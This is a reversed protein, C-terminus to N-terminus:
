SASQESTSPQEHDHRTGVLLVREDLVSRVTVVVYEVGLETLGIDIATPAVTAGAAWPEVAIRREVALTTLAQAPQALVGAAVVVELIGALGADVTAPRTLWTRSTLGALIAAVANRAHAIGVRQDACARAAVVADPVTFLRVGVAAPGSTVPAKGTFRAEAVPIALAAGAVGFGEYADHLADRSSAVADDVIVLLTLRIRDGGDLVAAAAAHLTIQRM